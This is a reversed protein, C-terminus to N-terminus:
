NKIMNIVAWIMDSEYGKGALFRATKVIRNQHEEKALSEWKKRALAQLKDTYDTKDIQALGESILGESLGLHKMHAEIKKKGWAKIRFKGGAYSLAMREENLYGEEQLKSIIKKAIDKSIGIAYLKDLVEKQSRDRFTCFATVKHYAQELTLPKRYSFNSDNMFSCYYVFKFFLLDSYVSKKALPTDLKACPM